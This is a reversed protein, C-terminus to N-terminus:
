VGFGFEEDKKVAPKLFEEAPSAYHTPTNSFCSGLCRSLHRFSHIAKYLKNALM